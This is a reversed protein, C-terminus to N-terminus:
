LHQIAAFHQAIDRSSSLRNSFVNYARVKSNFLEFREANFASTPGFDHMCEVLHLMLHVKQKQLLHPMHQKVTNVFTQCLCRWEDSLSPAFFKSYAIKCFSKWVALEGDNLYPGIIFLAMQVWAKFDRGCFCQYYYCVNGYLKVSFGSTHFAKLIALIEAKQGKSLLPMEERLLHKAPGLPLTHLAEFPFKKYIDTPLFLLPNDNEHVGYHTWMEAKAQETRLSSIEAM